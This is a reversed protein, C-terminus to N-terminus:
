NCIKKKILNGIILLSGSVAAPYQTQFNQHSGTITATRQLLCESSWMIAEALPLHLIENTYLEMPFSNSSITFTSFSACSMRQVSKRPIQKTVLLSVSVTHACQKVMEHIMESTNLLICAFCKLCSSM